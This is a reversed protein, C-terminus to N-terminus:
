TDAPCFTGSTVIVCRAAAAVPAFSVAANLCWAAFMSSDQQAAAAAGGSVSGDSGSGGGGPDARLCVRFSEGNGSGGSGGGGGGM